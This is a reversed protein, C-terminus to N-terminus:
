NKGDKDFIIIYILLLIAGVTICMDAVNFVAFDKGFFTFSLFDVVYSYRIRDIFNGITGGLILALIVSLFPNTHKLRIMEYTIAVVVVVTIAFFFGQKGHFMGFAAGANELYFLKFFGDIIVKPDNGKLHVVALYKTIQDIIIAAITILFYIM